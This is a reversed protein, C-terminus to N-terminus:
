HFYFSTLFFAWGGRVFNNYIYFIIHMTIHNYICLKLFVMMFAKLFM